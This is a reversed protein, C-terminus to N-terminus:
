VMPRPEQMSGTRKTLSRLRATIATHLNPTSRSMSLIQFISNRPGSLHKGRGKLPVYRSMYTFLEERTGAQIFQASNLLAMRTLSRTVAFSIRNQLGKYCFELISARRTQTGYIWTRAALHFALVMTWTMSM